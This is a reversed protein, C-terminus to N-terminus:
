VDQCDEDLALVAKVEAIRGGHRSRKRDDMEGDNQKRLDNLRQLYFTKIKGWTNSQLDQVTLVVPM